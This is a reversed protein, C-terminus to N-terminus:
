KGRACLANIPDCQLGDKQHNRRDLSCTNGMYPLSLDPMAALKMLQWEDFCDAFLDPPRTPFHKVKQTSCNATVVEPQMPHGNNDFWVKGVNEYNHTKSGLMYGAEEALKQFFFTNFVAQVNKPDHLGGKTLNKTRSKDGLASSLDQDRDIQTMLVTQILLHTKLAGWFSHRCYIFTTRGGLLIDITARPNRVGEAGFATFPNLNMINSNMCITRNKGDADWIKTIVFTPDTIAFEGQFTEFMQEVNYRKKTNGPVGRVDSDCVSFHRLVGKDRINQSGEALPRLTRYPIKNSFFEIIPTRIM